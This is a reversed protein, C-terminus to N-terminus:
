IHNEVACEAAKCYARILEDDEVWSEDINLHKKLIVTDIYMCDSKHSKRYKDSHRFSLFVSEKCSVFLTLFKEEIYFIHRLLYEFELFRVSHSLTREPPSLM